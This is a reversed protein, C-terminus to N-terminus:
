LFAICTSILAVKIVQYYIVALVDNEDVAVGGCDDPSDSLANSLFTLTNEADKHGATAKKMVRAKLNQIDRLTMFKGFKREIMGLLLKNNPRLTLVDHMEKEKQESLRRMSPDHKIVDKGVHYCHELSCDRIKIQEVKDFTVTSSQQHCRIGKGHHHPEGYHM